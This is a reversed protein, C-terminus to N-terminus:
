SKSIRASFETPVEDGEVMTELVGKVTGLGGVEREADEPLASAEMEKVGPDFLPDLM